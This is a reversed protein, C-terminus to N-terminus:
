EAVEESPMRVVVDEFAITVGAGGNATAQAVVGLSGFAFDDDILEDVMQGDICTGGAYTSIGNPDNPLCLLLPQDNVYFRMKAGQAVVRLRNQGGVGQVIGEHAIWTSVRQAQDNANSKWVSYYGDSSILFMYYGDTRNTESRFLLPLAVNFLPLEAMGCLVILPMNCTQERQLLRFVVGFGNDIPETVTVATVTLDFDAYTGRVLAYTTRGEQNLALTLAGDALTSSLRGEYTQWEPASGDFSTAYLIAEPAGSRTPQWGEVARYALNAVLLLVVLALNIGWKKGTSLSSIRENM